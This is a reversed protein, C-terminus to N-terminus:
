LRDSSIIKHVKAGNEKMYNILPQYDGIDAKKLANIYQKRYKWDRNLDSPWSPFLCHRAKLYRDAILRSFRGNGNPYPHIFALRHHVRAAQEIRTLDNNETCWFHVDDCLNRLAEPIRYPEIGPNTQTKRFKGAWDWVDSFMENHIKQLIPVNFWNQPPNIPRMLYKNTASFINEAEVQNLDDQTKVWKPKLGSIDDIPTAGEAYSFKM